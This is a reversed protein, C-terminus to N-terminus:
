TKPSREIRYYVFEVFSPQTAGPLEVEIQLAGTVLRRKEPDPHAQQGPPFIEVVGNITTKITLAESKRLDFARAFQEKEGPQWLPALYNLRDSVQGPQLYVRHVAMIEARRGVITEVQGPQAMNMTWPAPPLVPKQRVDCVMVWGFHFTGNQDRQVAPALPSPTKPMTAQLGLNVRMEQGPDWKVVSGLDNPNPVSRFECEDALKPLWRQLVTGNAVAELVVKGFFQDPDDLPRGISSPALQWTWRGVFNYLPSRDSTLQLVPWSAARAYVEQLTSQAATLKALRTAEEGMREHLPIKAKIAEEAAKAVAEKEAQEQANINPDLLRFLLWGEILGEADVKVRVYEEAEFTLSLFRSTTPDRLVLITDGASLRYSHFKGEDNRFDRPRGPHHITVVRPQRARLDDLESEQNLKSKQERLESEVREKLAGFIGQPQTTAGPPMQAAGPRELLMISVAAAGVLVITSATVAATYWWGKPARRFIRLSIALAVILASIAGATTGLVGSLPPVMPFAVLGIAAALALVAATVMVSWLVQRLWTTNKPVVLVALSWVSTMWLGVQWGFSPIALLGVVVGILWFVVRIM